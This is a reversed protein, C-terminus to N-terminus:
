EPAPLRYFQFYNKPRPGNKSEWARGLEEYQDQNHCQTGLWFQARAPSLSKKFRFLRDEEGGVLGGGMHLISKGRNVGEIAIGHYLLNTMGNTKIDRRYGMLHSHLYAPGELVLAAATIEDSQKIVGLWANEGFGDTLTKFYDMGFQTNSGAKLFEQTKAYLPVFWSLESSAPLVHFSFEMRKAKNIMQRHDRYYSTNLMEDEYSELMIPITQRDEFTKMSQSAWRVNDILPHFCVFESVIHEAVCWESFATWAQQLFHPDEGAGNVVPGGYGYASQIDQLARHGARDGEQTILSKLFPYMLIAEGSKCVACCAEVEASDVYAQIYEPRFYVDRREAPLHNLDSRWQEKEEAVAAKLLQFQM